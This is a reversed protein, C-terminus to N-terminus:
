AAEQLIKDVILIGDLHDIEHQACKAMRDNLRITKTAGTLDMYEVDVSAPRLVRIRAGPISLCGEETVTQRESAWVIRPNIMAFKGVLAIRMCLGIQPAALGIGNASAMISRMRQVLHGLEEDITTVQACVTRLIENPHLVIDTASM